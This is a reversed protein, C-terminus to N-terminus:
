NNEEIDNLMNVRRLHRDGEFETNIWADVIELALGKGIVREGLSLMNANNHAKSMKASFTDSVVACRIGKVKNAALSIGIGTGCCLIGYDVDKSVVAKAVKEGYIPYDVSDVGNETGFDVCEIGKSELHKKIEEKLNYGGHDSGLGIKM